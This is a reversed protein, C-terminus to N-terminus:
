VLDKLDVKPHNAAKTLKGDNRVIGNAVKAMNNEHVRSFAEELPWGYIAAIRVVVYIVDVLEKLVEDATKQGLAEILEGTEEAVLTACLEASKSGAEFLQGTKQYKASPHLFTKSYVARQFEHLAGFYGANEYTPNYITELDNV